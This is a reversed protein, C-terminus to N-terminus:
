DVDEFAKYVNLVHDVAKKLQDLDGNGEHFRCYRLSCVASLLDDMLCFDRPEIIVVENGSIKKM